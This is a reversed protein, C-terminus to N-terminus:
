VLGHDRAYAAAETRNATDTKDLINAVHKRATNLSIVLEDAIQQNSRGAALLRLVELERVSLLGDVTGPPTPGLSMMFDDIAALGQGADGPLYGDITVFRAGPILAAVKQSEGSSFSRFSRPFLILAPVRLSRLEEEVNSDRLARIWVNWDEPTTSSNFDSVHRDHEELSLGLPVISSIFMNWNQLSLEQFLGTPWVSWDVHATTWILADVREPHAAAYKVAHHGPGAVGFFVLRELNLADILVDLDRDFTGPPLDHPLGRSSLGFGRQDYVILRFRSTLGEMWEAYDRWLFQASPLNPPCMVMPRGEGREMYAINFGDSTRVYQVPPVDM